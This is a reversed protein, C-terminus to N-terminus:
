SELLVKWGQICPYNLRTVSTNYEFMGFEYMGLKKNYQSKM